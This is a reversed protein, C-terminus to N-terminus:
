PDGIQVGGVGVGAGKRPFRDCFDPGFGNRVERCGKVAAVGHGEADIAFVNEGGADQIPSAADDGPMSRDNLAMKRGPSKAVESRVSSLRKWAENGSEGVLRREHLLGSGLSHRRNSGGCNGQQALAEDGRIVVFEGPNQVGRGKESCVCTWEGGLDRRVKCVGFEAERTAGGVREGAHAWGRNRVKCVEEVDGVNLGAEEGDSGRRANSEGGGGRVGEDGQEVIRIRLNAEIRAVSVRLSVRRAVKGLLDPEGAEGIGVRRIEAKRQALKCGVDVVGVEVTGGDSGEGVV